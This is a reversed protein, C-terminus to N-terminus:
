GNKDNIGVMEKISSQRKSRRHMRCRDTFNCLKAINLIKQYHPEDKQDKENTPHSASLHSGTEDEL